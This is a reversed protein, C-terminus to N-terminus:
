IGLGLFGGGGFFGGSHTDHSSQIATQASFSAMAIQAQTDSQHTL